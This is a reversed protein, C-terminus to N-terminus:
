NHEQSEIGDTTKDSDLPNSFKSDLYLKNTEWQKKAMVALEEQVTTAATQLKRLQETLSALQTPNKRESEPLRSFLQIIDPLHNFVVTQIIHKQEVTMTKDVVDDVINLTAIIVNTAETPLSSSKAQLRVVESQHGAQLLLDPETQNAELALQAKQPSSLVQRVAKPQLVGQNVLAKYPADLAKVHKRNQLHKMGAWSPLVLVGATTLMALLFTLM